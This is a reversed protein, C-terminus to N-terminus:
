DVPFDIGEVVAADRIEVVAAESWDLTGPYWVTGEPPPDPWDINMDYPYAGIRYDGDPLGNIEYDSEGAVVFDHDVPVSGDMATAVVVFPWGPDGARVVRGGIVGARPITVDLTVTEGEGVVIVRADEPSSARDYWQPAWYATPIQYDPPSIRMLFSGPWLSPIALFRGPTVYPYYRTAVLSFDIPDYFDLVLSSYSVESEMRLRLGSQVLDAGTITQGLQLDFVAASAFDRGGVWQRSNDSYAVMLKVSGPLHLDVAYSGDEEVDRLDMVLLSDSTVVALRSYGTVGM